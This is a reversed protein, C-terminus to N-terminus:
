LNEKKQAVILYESILTKRDNYTYELLEFEKINFNISYIEKANEESLLRVYGVGAIPGEKIESYENKKIETSNKSITTKESFTRSYLIGEPKLVRYIEQLIIKTNPISNHTLCEADIVCDFYSDLFNLKTIDGVSLDVKVDFSDMLKQSQQIGAESGDIGFVNFGEKAMFWLNAGGGCGVELINISQRNHFKFFKKAVFRVVSESPYKGWQKKQFVENWTQDWSM